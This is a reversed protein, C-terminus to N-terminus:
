EHIREKGAPTAPLPSVSGMAVAEDRHRQWNELYARTVAPNGRLILLNEANRAQASFTFNYSGTVVVAEADLPDILMIKNHAVAYRTELWVPIGAEALRPIQSRDGKQLMERDALVIVEVGRRHAEILAQALTRSTFLYAQVRIQHRAQRLVKLLAGEADDWPTFAVEVSGQATLARSQLPLPPQAWLTPSLLALLLSLGGAWGGQLWRRGDNM